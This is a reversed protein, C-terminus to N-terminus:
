ESKLQTSQHVVSRAPDPPEAPERVYQGFYFTIRTALEDVVPHADNYRAVENWLANMEARVLELSGTVSEELPHGPYLGFHLTSGGVLPDDSASEARRRVKSVIANAVAQYHDFVAAEWGQKAGVPIVFAGAHLQSDRTGDDASVRGDAILESSASRAREEDM